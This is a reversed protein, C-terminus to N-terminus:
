LQIERLSSFIRGAEYISEPKDAKTAVILMAVVDLAPLNIMYIVGQKGIGLMRDGQSQFSFGQRSFHTSFLKAFEKSPATDKDPKLLMIYDSNTTSESNYRFLKSNSDNSKLLVGPGFQQGQFQVYKPLDERIFFFYVLGIIILTSIAKIM